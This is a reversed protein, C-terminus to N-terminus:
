LSLWERPGRLDELRAEEFTEFLQVGDALEVLDLRHVLHQLVAAM